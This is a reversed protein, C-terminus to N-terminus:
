SGNIIPRKIVFDISDDVNYAPIGVLIDVSKIDELRRRLDDRIATILKM